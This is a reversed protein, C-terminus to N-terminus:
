KKNLFNRANEDIGGAGMFVIVTDKENAIRSLVREADSWQPAFYTERKKKRISQALDFADYEGKEDRGAVKYIPLLILKDASDFSHVFDSFLRNLRDAQHPEFVCVLKKGPFNKKFAKLTAKIETPHHAYDSYFLTDFKQKQSKIKSIKNQLLEMRRWAGHYSAFVTDTTKKPIRLIKAVQSAAEANLQNHDGFIGLKRKVSPASFRVVHIRKKRAEADAIKKLNPDDVNIIVYGGPRINKIYTKFATIVGSLNEYIDLHENDINLLVAIEPYYNHFARSYEDAELVFYKGKGKRFNRGKLERLNTGVLITPDLKAALLLLAILSTVTSKGHSGSVAITEHRRTIGGVAEAYTQVKYQLARATDLEPNGPKIAASYIVLDVNHPINVVSHGLSIQVREKKLADTIPSRAMDSGSVEWKESLFYRALASM